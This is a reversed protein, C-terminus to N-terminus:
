NILLQIKTEYNILSQNLSIQGLGLFKLFGKKKRRFSSTKFIFKSHTYKSLMCNIKCKNRCSFLCVFLDLIVPLSKMISKTEQQLEKINPEKSIDGFVKKRKKNLYCKFKIQHYKPNQKLKKTWCKSDYEGMKQRHCCIKWVSSFFMSTVIFFIPSNVGWLLYLSWM